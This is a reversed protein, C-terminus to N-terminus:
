KKAESKGAEKRLMGDAPLYVSFTSGKGEESTFSMHGGAYEVITKVIFLGLGTGDTDKNKANDARFLKTFIKSQQNKPIGLGTDTVQILIDNEIPKIVITVTGNTPTYKCANAILNQFITKTINADFMVPQLKPDFQEKIHLVKNTALAELREKIIKRAVKPLDIQEPRIPLNGLELSSTTLMADVLAALRKNSHYIQEIYGKQESKLPGADGQLLLESVWSIASIPTRLQHSALTVFESKARDIAQERSTDRFTTIAGRAKGDIVIARSAVSVSLKSGDKRLYTANQGETKEGDLSRTLPRNENPVTHGFTDIMPVADIFLKGVLEDKSWGLLDSAAQSIRVVRGDADVAVVGEDINDVVLDAKIKEERSSADSKKTAISLKERSQQYVYIGISAVVLSVLLQRLTLASYPLAMFSFHVSLMALGILGFLAFMWATGANKGVLFYATIPFMFFWLIGTNATGGTLLMVLLMVMMDLLLLHNALRATNPLRATIMILGAVLSGYLELLGLQINSEVVIHLVGFIGLSLCALLAYTATVTWTRPLPPGAAGPM